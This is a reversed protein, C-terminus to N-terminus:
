MPHTMLFDNFLPSNDLVNIDNNAGAVGFSAHWIWLDQSVVAELMITPYKKDGMGYQGQWLIPCNKWERCHDNLYDAMLREEAGDQDRNILNRTLPLRNEEAVLQQHYAQELFIVDTEDDNADIEFVFLHFDENNQNM